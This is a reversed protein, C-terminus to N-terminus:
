RSKRAARARRLEAMAARGNEAARYAEAATIEGLTFATSARSADDMVPRQQMSRCCGLRDCGRDEEIGRHSVFGIAGVRGHPQTLVNCALVAETEQASPCRSRLRSGIIAKFRFFTNEVRGQRHYGSERKWRRRGLGRM